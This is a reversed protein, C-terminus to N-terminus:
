KPSQPAPTEGSLYNSDTAPVYAVWDVQGGEVLTAKGIFVWVPQLYPQYKDLDYYALYVNKATIDQILATTPRDLPGLSLNGTYITFLNPQKQLRDWATDSSILPYIGIEEANYEWHTFNLDIIKIQQPIPAALLLYTVNGLYRPSVYPYIYKQKDKTIIVPSRNFDIRIAAADSINSVPQLQGNQYKLFYITQNGTALDGPPTPMLNHKALLTIAQQQVIQLTSFNGPKFVGPDAVYNYLYRFNLSQDNVQLTVNPATWVSETPSLQIPETNLEFSSAIAQARDSSLFGYPAKRIPYIAAVKPEAPLTTTILDLRTSYNSALKIGIPDIQLPPIKGHIPNIVPTEPPPTPTPFVLNYILISARVVVFITLIVGVIRSVIHFM